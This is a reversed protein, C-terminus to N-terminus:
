RRRYGKTPPCMSRGFVPMNAICRGAVKPLPRQERDPNCSLRWVVCQSEWKGNRHWRMRTSIAELATVIDNIYNTHQPSHALRKTGRVVTRCNIPQVYSAILDLLLRSTLTSRRLDGSMVPVAQTKGPLDPHRQLGPPPAIRRRCAQTLSRQWPGCSIAFVRRAMRSPWGHGRDLVDATASFVAMVGRLM